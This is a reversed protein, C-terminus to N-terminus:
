PSVDVSRRPLERGPLVRDSRVIKLTEEGRAFRPSRAMFAIGLAIAIAGALGALLLSAGYTWDGKNLVPTVTPNIESQATAIGAAALLMACAGLTAAAFRRFSRM